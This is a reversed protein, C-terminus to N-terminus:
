SSQRHLQEFVQWGLEAACFSTWRERLALCEAPNEAVLFAYWRGKRVADKESSPAAYLSASSLPLVGRSRGPKWLLGANAVTALLQEYPQVGRCSFVLFTLAGSVGHELLFDAISRTVIGMSERANIEVVPWVRKGALLMS